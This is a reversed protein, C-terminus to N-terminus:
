VTFCQLSRKKCKKTLNLNGPIKKNVNRYARLEKQQIGWPLASSCLFIFLFSISLSYQTSLILTAKNEPYIMCGNLQSIQVAVKGLYIGKDPERIGYIKYFIGDTISWANDIGM